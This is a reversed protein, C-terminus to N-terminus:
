GSDDREELPADCHPCREPREAPSDEWMRGCEPCVLDLWCAADGGEPEEYESASPSM